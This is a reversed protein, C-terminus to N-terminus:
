KVANMVYESMKNKICKKTCTLSKLESPLKNYYRIATILSDKEKIRKNMKPIEILKHRTVSTSSIYIERMNDYHYCICRMIYLQDFNLIDKSQLLKIFKSQLSRMTTLETSYAGGWIIIGYNLLSYVNAYYISLLIKQPLYKLKYMIYLYYRLKNILKDIHVDWKLNCDLIVGLYKASEAREIVTDNLRLTVSEPMSTSYCGYTMFQTKGINVTLKNKIFWKNLMRLYKNMQLEAQSWTKEVSLVVTDDAFAFIFKCLNFIDNIYILFLLPGLVTGQPVGMEIKCMNSYHNQIRVLQNRNTLYSEMLELNKGRIGYVFLKQLLIKHDVTDFAKSLDIYTAIVALNNDISDYIINTIDYQADNAGKNKCYGFQKSNLIKFKTFFNYFRVFILKEFIKAVNSILSIPRYNNVCTSDGTKYVPVIEACKLCDPWIGRYICENFLSKLLPSIFPCILRLVYSHIRDVGGCKDKLNFITAEIESTSVPSLFISKVNTYTPYKYSMGVTCDNNNNTDISAALNKGVNVFFENFTTAINTPDTVEEGNVVIKEVTKHKTDKGMKKNIYSWMSKQNKCCRQATAIEDLQKAKKILKQLIKNYELYNKKLLKSKKNLKWINYLLEKHQISTLIGKTMWKKRFKSSNKKIKYTASEVMCKIDEIFLNIAFNPDDILSYKSWDIGRCMNILKKSSLKTCTLNNDKSPTVKCNFACFIPYHDPLVQSYKIASINLDTRIFMNDICTGGSDNPRTVTNFLPIYGLSLSNNIFENVRFDPKLLNINFDGVILHHKIKDVKTETMLTVISSIFDSESFDHCRYLGSILVKCNIDFSVLANLVRANGFNVINVRHLIDAKVFIAVGDAANIKSFNYYMEYNDIKFLNPNKLVWVESCIIISPKIVLNEIFCELVGLNAQLSRINVHLIACDFNNLTLNLANLSDCELEDQRVDIDEYKVFM